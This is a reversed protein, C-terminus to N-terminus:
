RNLRVLAAAVEATLVRFDLAALKPSRVIVLLDLGAPLLTMQLRLAERVRRRLRNRHAAKGELKKGVVVAVRSAGAQRRLFKFVLHPTALDTGRRFVRDIAGSLRLRAAAPLM